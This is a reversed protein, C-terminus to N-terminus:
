ASARSGLRSRLGAWSVSRRGRSLRHGLGGLGPRGRRSRRSRTSTSDAHELHKNDMLDVFYNQAMANSSLLEAVQVSGNEFAAM